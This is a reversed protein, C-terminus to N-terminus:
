DCCYIILIGALDCFVFPRDIELRWMELGGESARRAGEAGSITQRRDGQRLCGPPLALSVSSERAFILFDLLERVILLKGIGLRHNEGTKDNRQRACNGYSAEGAQM